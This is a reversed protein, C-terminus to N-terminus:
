HFISFEICSLTSYIHFLKACQLTCTHMVLRPAALPYADDTLRRSPM